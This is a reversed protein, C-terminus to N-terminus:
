FSEGNLEIDDAEIAVDDKADEYVRHLYERLKPFSAPCCLEFPVM